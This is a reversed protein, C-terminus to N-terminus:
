KKFLHMLPKDLNQTNEQGYFLLYFVISYFVGIISGATIDQLWHQSLYVRSYAGLIAISLLVLKFSQKKAAMAFAFFLAFAQTAHGSPFSKKILLEVGEVKKVDYGVVYQWDWFPRDFDQFFQYKLFNTTLAAFAFSLTAYIGLRINILFAILVIVAGLVGDGLYTIYFFFNDIFPNGVLLNLQIHLLHKNTYIFVYAMFCLLLAYISLLTGNSYLLKKLM